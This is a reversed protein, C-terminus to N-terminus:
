VEAGDLGVQHKGGGVQQGFVRRVSRGGGRGVLALSGEGTMGALAFVMVQEAQYLRTSIM